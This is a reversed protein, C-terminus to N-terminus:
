QLRGRLRFFYEMGPKSPLEPEPPADFVLDVIPRFEHRFMLATDVGPRTGRIGRAMKHFLGYGRACLSGVSRGPFRAWFM